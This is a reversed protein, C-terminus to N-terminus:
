PPRRLRAAARELGAEDGGGSPHQAPRLRARVSRGRRRVAQGRHREPHGRRRDRDARRASRRSVADAAPLPRRIGAPLGPGVALHLPGRRHRVADGAVTEAGGAHTRDDAAGAGHLAATDRGDVGAALRALNEERDNGSHIGDAAVGALRLAAVQDRMLAVLPSVVVTLGDM